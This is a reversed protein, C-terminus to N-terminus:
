SVVRELHLCPNSGRQSQESEDITSADSARGHPLHVVNDSPHPEREQGPEDDPVLVLVPQNLGPGSPQDVGLQLDGDGEDGITETSPTGDAHWKKDAAALHADVAAAVKRDTEPSAHQYRMAAEYSSHGGRKMVAKTSAGADAAWTLGSHRLDHLHVEPRNVVMRAKSWQRDLTRGSAPGGDRGVFLWDNPGPGTFDELHAVIDPVLSSPVALKRVGAETKPPGVMMRGRVAVAAQEITLVEERLQVHRRQLGLVEARRLQTLAALRIALQYRPEVVLLAAELESPSVTPREPNKHQGAGKVRCPSRGILDDSVATEFITHLLRYAQTATDPHRQKLESNWRRVESSTVKGLQISGFTPLIHLKLLSRYKERTSARLDRSAPWEEAYESFLKRSQRHDVFAGRRQDVQVEALYDSAERHTSFTQPGAIQEGSPSLYRAQFRGSPLKRISGFPRRRSV